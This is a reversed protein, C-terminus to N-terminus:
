ETVPSAVTILLRGVVLFLLGSVVVLSFGAHGCLGLVAMFLTFNNKFFSCWSKNRQQEITKNQPKMKAVLSVLM